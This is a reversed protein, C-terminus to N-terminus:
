HTITSKARAIHRVIQVCSGLPPSPGDGDFQLPCATGEGIGLFRNMSFIGRVIRVNRGQVPTITCGYRLNGVQMAPRAEATAPNGVPLGVSKRVNDVKRPM